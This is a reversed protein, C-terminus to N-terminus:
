ENKIMSGNLKQLKLGDIEEQTIRSIICYLEVLTDKLHNVKTIKNNGM